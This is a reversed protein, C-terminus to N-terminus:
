FNFISITGLLAEKMVKEKPRLQRQKVLHLRKIDKNLKRLIGKLNNIRELNAQSLLVANEPKQPIKELEGIEEYLSPAIQNRPSSNETKMYDSDNDKDNSSSIIKQLHLESVKSAQLYENVTEQIKHSAELNFDLDDICKKLM